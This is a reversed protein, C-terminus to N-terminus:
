ISPVTVTLATVLAATGAQFVLMRSTTNMYFAAMTDASAQHMRKVTLLYLTMAIGGHLLRLPLAAVPLVVSWPSALAYIVLARLRESGSWSEAGTIFRRQASHAAKMNRPPWAIAAFVLMVGAVVLVASIFGWGKRALLEVEEPAFFPFLAGVKLTWLSEISMIVTIAVALMGSVAGLMGLLLQEVRSLYFPLDLRTAVAPAGPLYRNVQKSGPRAYIESWEHINFM